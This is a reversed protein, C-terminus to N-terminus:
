DKKTITWEHYTAVPKFGLKQYCSIAPTNITRVNLGISDVEDILTSCVQATVATGLGRNRHDPHTVINGIAAVRYQKSFVHIGGVSIIKRNLRIGFFKGTELMRPDFAHGPYSHSYLTLLEDADEIQMPEVLSVDVQNIHRADVLAMKFYEGHHFLSHSNRFLHDMEPSLHAYLTGPLESIQTKILRKLSAYHRKAALAMYVPPTFANYILTVALIESDRQLAYWNTYPWYFDDLDGIGYINLYTDQRLYREIRKKDFIQNVEM